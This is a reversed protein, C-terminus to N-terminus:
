TCKKFHACLFDTPERNGEQSVPRTAGKPAPEKIWTESQVQFRSAVPLGAAQPLCCPHQARPGPNSYQSQTQVPVHGAGGSSGRRVQGPHGRLHSDRSPQATWCVSEEHPSTGKSAQGLSSRPRHGSRSPKPPKTKWTCDHPPRLRSFAVTPDGCRRHSGGDERNKGGKERWGETERM